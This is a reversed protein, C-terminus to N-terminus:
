AKSRSRRVRWALLAVTALAAGILVVHEVQGVVREFRKLSDGFGYGVAYGAGVTVPVYTAAGLANALLFAPFRLGLLGAIPGALFRVGPLFRAVFVGLPGHRAVFRRMSAFREAAIFIWRGDREIASHGYRRGLWYGLTDGAMASGIGVGLVLPLRLQGEWVLYGALALITEEPVPLGVNGLVIVLFIALYGWHEILNTLDPM